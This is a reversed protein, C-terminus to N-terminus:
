QTPMDALVKRWTMKAAVYGAGIGFAAFIRMASMPFKGHPGAIILEYILAPIFVSLLVVIVFTLLALLGRAIFRM